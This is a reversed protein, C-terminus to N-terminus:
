PGVDGRVALALLERDRDDREDLAGLVRVPAHQERQIAIVERQARVLRRRVLQRQRLPLDIGARQRRRIQDARLARERLTLELQHLGLLRDMARVCQARHQAAACRYARGIRRGVYRPEGPSPEAPDSASAGAGALERLEISSFAANSSRLASFSRNGCISRPSLPVHEPLVAVVVARERLDARDLRAAPAHEDAERPGTRRAVVAAAPIALTCCSCVTTRRSCSTCATHSSTRSATRVWSPASRRTFAAARNRPSASFLRSISCRLNRFPVDEFMKTACRWSATALARSASSSANSPWVRADVVSCLAVPRRSTSRCRARCTVSNPTSRRSRISGRRRHPSPLASGVGVRGLRRALWSSWTTVVTPWDAYAAVIRAIGLGMAVGFLGGIMALSFATVLFQFRIDARRAGVARRVGIERTQELVTALMINMIGIGGVLLSIGAILGM